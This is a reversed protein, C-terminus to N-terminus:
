RHTRIRVSRVRFSSHERPRGNSIWLRQREVLVATGVSWSEPPPYGLRADNRTALWGPGALPPTSAAVLPRLPRGPLVLAAKPPGADVVVPPEPRASVSACGTLLSTVLGLTIVPWRGRM